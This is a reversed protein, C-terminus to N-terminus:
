CLTILRIVSRPRLSARDGSTFAVFPGALQAKSTAENWKRGDLPFGHLFM